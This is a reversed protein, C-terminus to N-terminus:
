GKSLKSIDKLNSSRTNIYPICVYVKGLNYKDGQSQRHSIKKKQRRSLKLTM